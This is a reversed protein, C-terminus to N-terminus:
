SGEPRAARHPGLRHVWREVVRGTPSLVDDGELARRAAEDFPIREHDPLLAWFGPEDGSLDATLGEVLERALGYDARTVLRIWHSSLRPTVFPVHFTVPKLGRLAAIRRLVEEHSLGEPGPLDWVGAEEDPLRLAHALAVVVDDIGVPRSRNRLWNPLLMAPLRMALDRVIRWSESGPGIIMSARLEVTSVPGARLREGTALRSRLHRSSAGGRPEVGGLYVIRELGEDGAAMAFAEAAARERAEYAEGSAMGHVLYIASRCGRLAPRLSGPDGLDLRVWERDPYRRAARDPDRSACRVEFGAEVLAPFAHRGVFGSAGTLLVPSREAPSALALESETSM